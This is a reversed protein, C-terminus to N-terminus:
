ILNKRKASAAYGAVQMVGAKWFIAIQKNSFGRKRLNVYNEVSATKAMDQENTRRELKIVCMPSKGNMYIDFIECDIDKGEVMTQFRTLLTNAKEQTTKEGNCFVNKKVDECNRTKLFFTLYLSKFSDQIDYFFTYYIAELLDSKPMGCFDLWFHEQDAKLKEAVPFYCDFFDANCFYGKDVKKPLYPTGKKSFSVEKYGSPTLAKMREYRVFTNGKKFQNEFPTQTSTGGLYHIISKDTISAKMAQAVKNRSMRKTVFSALKSTYLKSM